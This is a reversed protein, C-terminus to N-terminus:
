RLSARSKEYGRDAMYAVRVEEFWRIYDSHHVVGMKDTEYYQADHEYRHVKEM